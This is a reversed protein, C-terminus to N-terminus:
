TPNFITDIWQAWRPTKVKDVVVLSPDHLFGWPLVQECRTCRTNMLDNRERYVGCEYKAM